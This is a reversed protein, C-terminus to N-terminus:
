GGKHEDQYRKELVQINPFIIGWQFGVTAMNMFSNDPM